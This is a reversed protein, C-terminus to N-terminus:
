KEGRKSAAVRMGGLRCGGLWTLISPYVDHGVVVKRVGQGGGLVSRLGGELGIGSGSGSGLRRNGRGHLRYGFFRRFGKGVHEGLELAAV